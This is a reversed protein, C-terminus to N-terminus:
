GITPSVDGSSGDIGMTELLSGADHRPMLTIPVGHLGPKGYFVEPMGGPTTFEFSLGVGLSRMREKTADLDAVQVAYGSIPWHWLQEIEIQPDMKGILEIGEEGLAVRIRMNDVDFIQLSIGFLAELDAAAAHIDDVALVARDYRTAAERETAPSTASTVHVPIGHFDVICQGDAADHVTFGRDALTALTAPADDVVISVCALPGPSSGSSRQVVTVVPSAAATVGLAPHEITEFEIGLAEAFAARAEDLDDVQVTVSAIRRNSSM